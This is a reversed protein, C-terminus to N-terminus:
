KPCAVFMGKADRCTKKAAATPCKAFHGKADRCRAPAVAKTAPAAAPKAAPAAVPAAAAPKAALATATAPSQAFAAPVSAASLVLAAFLSALVPARRMPFRRFADAPDASRLRRGGREDAPRRCLSPTMEVVVAVIMSRRLRLDRVSVNFAYGHRQAIDRIRVRTEANM